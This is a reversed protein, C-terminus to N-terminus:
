AGRRSLAIESQREREVLHEHIRRITTLVSLNAMTIAGPFLRNLEVQMRIMQVQSGGAEMFDEDSGVSVRQLLRQWITRVHRLTEDKSREDAQRREEKRKLFLDREQEIKWQEELLSHDTEGAVTRPISEIYHFSSPMAEAPLVSRMSQELAARANAIPHAPEIAESAVTRSAGNKLAGTPSANFTVFAIHQRLGLEDVQELIAADRIGQQGMLMAEVDAAVFHQRRPTENTSPLLDGPEAQPSSLGAHRAARGHLELLGDSRWRAREGTLFIHAEGGDPTARRLFRAATADPDHMYGSVVGDGTFSLEGIEGERAPFLERDLILAQMGDIPQGIPVSAQAVYRSPVPYSTAYGSTEVTGYTNVIRLRSHNGALWQLRQPSLTAVEGDHELEIVLNNLRSFIKPATEILDHVASVPLCLTSVGFQRIALNLDDVQLMGSARQVPGDPALALTAGHLLSGWLELLAPRLSATPHLLITETSHFRILASGSVLRTIARHPIVVAVLGEGPVRRFLLAAPSDPTTSPMATENSTPMTQQELRSADLVSGFESWLMCSGTGHSRDCLILAMGSARIRRLAHEDQLLDRGLPVYAAGALLIGAICTIMVPSQDMAVGVFAGAAVGQQRLAVAINQARILLSAYTLSGFPGIVAEAEPRQIAAEILLQEVTALNLRAAKAPSLSSDEDHVEGGHKEGTVPGQVQEGQPLSPPHM